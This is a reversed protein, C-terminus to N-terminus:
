EGKIIAFDKSASVPGFEPWSEDIELIEQANIYVSDTGSNWKAVVYYKPFFEEPGGIDEVEDLTLNNILVFPTPSSSPASLNGGMGHFTSIVRPIREESSFAIDGNARYVVLGYGTPAAVTDAAEYCEWEMPINSAITTDVGIGYDRGNNFISQLFVRANSDWTTPRVFMLPNVGAGVLTGLEIVSTHLHGSQGAAVATFSGSGTRVYNTFDSDIQLFGSDNIVRLGYTM